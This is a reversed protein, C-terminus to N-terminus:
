SFGHKRTLELALGDLGPFLLSDTLGASALFELASGFCSAPLIIKAVSGEHVVELPKRKQGHVTFWGRQARMRVNSQLPYIAIPYKWSMGGAELLDGYDYDHCSEILYRPDILDRYDWAKEHANMRYPNLLWIAAPKTAVVKAEPLAFYLAVGLLETWDLIRTPLGHHRMHVLYDWDTKCTSHIEAARARFEWFLSAETENLEADTLNESGRLLTPRLSWDAEAQGRYFCEEGPEFGLHEKATHIAELFGEWNRPHFVRQRTPVKKRGLRARQKASVRRYHCIM